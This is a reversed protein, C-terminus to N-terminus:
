KPCYQIMERVIGSYKMYVRFNITDVENRTYILGHLHNLM